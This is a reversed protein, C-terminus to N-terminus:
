ASPMVQNTGSSKFRDEAMQAQQEMGYSEFPRDAKVQYLYPSSGVGLRRHLLERVQAAIGRAFYLAPGWAQYQGCHTLEHVLLPLNGQCRDPLFVHNGLAVARNRSAALVVRRLLGAAGRCDEHHLRVRSLDVRLPVADMVIRELETPKM